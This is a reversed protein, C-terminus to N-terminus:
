GRKILKLHTPRQLKIPVSRGNQDIIFRRGDTDTHMTYLPIGNQGAWEELLGPHGQARRIDSLLGMHNVTYERTEANEFDWLFEFPEKILEDWGHTEIMEVTSFYDKTGRRNGDYKKEIPFIRCLRRPTTLALLGLIFESLQFRVLLDDASKTEKLANLMRVGYLICRDLALDDVHFKLISSEFSRRYSEFRSM